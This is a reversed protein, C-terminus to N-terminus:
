KKTKTKPSLTFSHIFHSSVICSNSDHHARTKKFYLLFSPHSCLPLSDSSPANPCLMLQNNKRITHDTRSRLNQKKSCTAKFLEDTM